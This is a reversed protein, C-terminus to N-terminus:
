MLYFQLLKFFLSCHVRYYLPLSKFFIAPPSPIIRFIGPLAQLAIYQICLLVPELFVYVQIQIQEETICDLAFYDKQTEIRHSPSSLVVGVANGRMLLILQSLVCSSSLIPDPVNDQALMWFTAAPVKIMMLMITTTIHTQSNLSFLEVMQFFM